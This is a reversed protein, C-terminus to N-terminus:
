QHLLYSDSPERHLVMIIESYDVKWDFFLSQCSNQLLFQVPKSTSQSAQSISPTSSSSFHQWAEILLTLFPFASTATVTTTTPPMPQEILKSSRALGFKVM